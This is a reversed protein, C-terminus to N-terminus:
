QVKYHIDFHQTRHATLFYDRLEIINDNADELRFYPIFRKISFFVKGDPTIKLHKIKRQESEIKELLDLDSDGKDDSDNNNDLNDPNMKKISQYLSQYLNIKKMSSQNTEPNFKQLTIFGDSHGYIINYEGGYKGIAVSQAYEDLDGKAIRENNHLLYYNSSFDAIAILNDYTDFTSIGSETQFGNNGYHFSNHCAL